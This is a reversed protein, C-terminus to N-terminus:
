LLEKLEARIAALIDPMFRQIARDLDATHIASPDYGDDGKLGTIGQPGRIGTKGTPGPIGRLGREASHDELKKLRSIISRHGSVAARYVRTAVIGVVSRSATRQGNGELFGLTEAHLFDPHDSLDEPLLDKLSMTLEQRLRQITERGHDGSCITAAPRQQHDRVNNPSSTAWRALKLLSQYQAETTVTNNGPVHVTIADSLNGQSTRLVDRGEWIEGDAFVFVHYFIDSWGKYFEHMREIVLLWKAKDAFSLSRPGRAGTHHQEYVFVEEISRTRVAPEETPDWNPRRVDFLDFLELHRSM